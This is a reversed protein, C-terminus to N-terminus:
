PLEDRRLIANFADSSDDAELPPVYPTHLILGDTAAGRRLDKVASRLGHAAVQAGALHTAYSGVQRRARGVHGQRGEPKKAGAELRPQCFQGSAPCPAPARVPICCRASILPGCWVPLGSTEYREGSDHSRVM